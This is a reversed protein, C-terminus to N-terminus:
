EPGRYAISLFEDQHLVLERLQGRPIRSALRRWIVGVITEGTVVAGALEPIDVNLNRHDFAQLIEADVLRDLAEVDIVRSTLGDPEGAIVVM